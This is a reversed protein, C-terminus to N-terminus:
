PREPPVVRLKSEAGGGSDVDRGILQMTRGGVRVAVRQTIGAAADLVWPHQGLQVPMRNLPLPVDSRASLLFISTVSAWRKLWSM